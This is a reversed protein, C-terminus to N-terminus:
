QYINMHMPIGALLLIAIVLQYTSCYQGQANRLRVLPLVTNMHLSCRIAYRLMCRHKPLLCTCQSIGVPILWNFSPMRAYLLASLINIAYPIVKALSLMSDIVHLVQWYSSYASLYCIPSYLCYDECCYTICDTGHRLMDREQVIITMSLSHMNNGKQM